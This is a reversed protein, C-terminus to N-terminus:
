TLVEFQSKGGQIMDLRTWEVELIILLVTRMKQLGSTDKSSFPLNGGAGPPFLVSPGGFILKIPDPEGLTLMMWKKM